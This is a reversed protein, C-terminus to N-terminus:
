YFLIIDCLFSEVKCGSLIGIDELTSYCLLFDVADYEFYGEAGFFRNRSWQSLPLM